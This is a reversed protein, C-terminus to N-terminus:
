AAQGAVGLSYISNPVVFDHLVSTTRIQQSLSAPLPAWQSRPPAVVHVPHNYWLISVTATTFAHPTRVKLSSAIVEGQQGTTITWVESGLTSHAHTASVPTVAVDKKEFTYTTSHAGRQVSMTPFGKILSIDPMTLELASGFLAPVKFKNNFWVPHQATNLNANNFFVRGDLARATFTVAGLVFPVQVTATAAKTALNVAATGTLNYPSNTQVNFALGVSTPPYGNLALPDRYPGGSPNADVAAAVVGFVTLGSALLGSLVAIGRHLQRM